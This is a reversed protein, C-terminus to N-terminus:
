NHSATSFSIVQPMPVASCGSRKEPRAMTMHLDSRQSKNQPSNGGPSAAASPISASPTSPGEPSQSPSAFAQIRRPSATCGVAKREKNRIPTSDQQQQETIKNSEISCFSSGNQLKLQNMGEQFSRILEESRGPQQQQESRYLNSLTEDHNSGSAWRSPSASDATAAHTYCSAAAAAAARSDFLPHPTSRAGAFFASAPLGERACRQHQAQVTLHTCGSSQATKYLLRNGGM